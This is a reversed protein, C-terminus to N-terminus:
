GQLRVFFAVVILIALALLTVKIWSWPRAGSVEGTVGNIAVQFTRAGYTYALLWVPVLIHKFRQDSYTADVQLNRYTDGPVDRACLRRLAADM